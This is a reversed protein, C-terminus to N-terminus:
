EEEELSSGGSDFETAIEGHPRRAAKKRDARHQLKDRLREQMLDIAERMDHGTVHARILDGNIDILVQATSPRSRAPDGAQALKLTALLIPEAIDAFVPALRATAYQFARGDVDGRAVTILQVPGHMTEITFPVPAPPDATAHSADIIMM